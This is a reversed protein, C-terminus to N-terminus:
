LEEGDEREQVGHGDPMDVSDEAVEEATQLASQGMPEAEGVLTVGQVTQGRLQYAFAVPLEAHVRQGKPQAVDWPM